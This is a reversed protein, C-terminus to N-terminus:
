ATDEQEPCPAPKCAATEKADLAVEFGQCGGSCALGYEGMGASKEGLWAGQTTECIAECEKKAAERPLQGCLGAMYFGSCGAACAASPKLGGEFCNSTCALLAGCLKPPPVLPEKRESGSGSGSGGGPQLPDLRLGAGSALGLWLCAVALVCALPRLMARSGRTPEGAEESRESGM